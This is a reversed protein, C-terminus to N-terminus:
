ENRTGVAHAVHDDGRRTKCRETLRERAGLKEEQRCLPHSRKKVTMRIQSAEDRARCLNRAERQVGNNMQMGVLFTVACRVVGFNGDPDSVTVFGQGFMKSLCEFISPSLTQFVLRLIIEIQQLQESDDLRRMQFCIYM